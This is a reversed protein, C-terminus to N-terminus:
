LSKMSDLFNEIEIDSLRLYEKIQSIYKLNKTKLLNQGSEMAKGRLIYAKQVYIKADMLKQTREDTSLQPVDIIEYTKVVEECMRKAYNVDKISNKISSSSIDIKKVDPICERMPILAKREIKYIKEKFVKITEEENTEKYEIKEEGEISNEKESDVNKNITELDNNKRIVEDEKVDKHKIQKEYKEDFAYNRNDLISEIKNLTSIYINSIVIVSAIVVYISAYISARKFNEKYKFLIGVPLVYLILIVLAWRVNVVGKGLIMM